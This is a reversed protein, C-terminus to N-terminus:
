YQYYDPEFSTSKMATKCEDKWELIEDIIDKAQQLQNKLWKINAEKHKAINTNPLVSKLAQDVKEEYEDKLKDELELLKELKMNDIRRDNIAKKLKYKITDMENQLKTLKVIIDVTPGKLLINYKLVVRKGKQRVVAKWHLSNRCFGLMENYIRSLTQDNYSKRSKQREYIRRFWIQIKAAAERAKPSLQIKLFRSQMEITTEQVMNLDISQEDEDGVFSIAMPTENQENIESQKTLSQNEPATAIREETSSMMRRLSSHFGEISNYSLKTTGYKEFVSFRSKGGCDYYVNVLSDCGTEKLDNILIEWLRGTNKEVIYKYNKFRPEKTLYRFLNLVRSILTSENLGILVLLRILRLIVNPYKTDEHLLLRQTQNLLTEIAGLFDTRHYGAHSPLLSKVNFANFYSFLYARPLCFDCTGPSNALILFLTFEMLSVLDGFAHIEVISVLRINEIAYQIFVRANSIAEKVKNGRSFLFFSSLRRGVPIAQSSRDNLEFGVPLSKSRYLRQTRSMEWHFKNIGWYDRLQQLVFICKLMTGFDGVNKFISNLWIRHALSIFGTRVIKPLKTLMMHTIESCSTQPTQYRIHAEVLKEAWCRQFRLVLKSQEDKPLVRRRYLIDLQRMVNYQLFGLELRQCIVSPTPIAHYFSCKQRCSVSNSCIISTINPINLGKRHAEEILEFIYSALFRSIKWHVIDVDYVHRDDIIEAPDKGPNEDQMEDMFHILPSDLHIRRERPRGDVVSVFLIKEFDDRIKEVNGDRRPVILPFTIECLRLLCQLRERWYKIEINSRMHLWVNIAYFESALDQRERFFQMCERVKDLDNNLYNIYLQFENKLTIQQKSLIKKKIVGHVKYLLSRLEPLHNPSSINSITNKLVNARCLHLFCELSEIIDDKDNSHTFMHAAKEFEGQSRLYKAAIRFESSKECVKLFENPAHDKLLEAQEEQSLLSLAKKSMEEKGERIFHINILRALRYFTNKEIEQRKMLDIVTEYDGGDKYSVVAKTYKNAKEYYEGAKRWIKGKHYCDAAPEFMKWEVLVDGAEEYMNVSMYCSAAQTPRSCKIFQLAASIFNSKVVEEDSDYISDRAIQQLYYANSLDLKEKNESKEFCFIAQDYLRQEFFSKGRKEWESTSSKKALTPFVSLEDAGKVVKVLGHYKWYTRIPESLEANEDFIWIRERARTVAVYLHKLESSIIYHKEVSFTQIGGSYNSLVSLIVRWKLLAPSDTFFNYLLVDNFEMGKAEFVTLVLGVKGILARVRKKAEDDRVIIVQDAGFESHNGASFASFHFKEAHFGEFIIPRPGGVEGMERPMRDISDPFFNRILDIVSAALRLIGNHSRYNTNLEFRKPKIFKYPGNNAQTRSLEWQYLLQNVDVTSNNSAKSVSLPDAPLVNHQNDQCEDVYVEHIQHGGIAKKKACRLTALTRDMLDYDHNLIKMREYREFIDYIMDRDYFIPHKKINVARYDERSLHDVDPNSGKIISFESYVLACDLKKRSIHPWYKKQFLRFDVFHRWSEDSTDAFSIKPPIFEEGENTDDTIFKQYKATWLKSVDIGYTGELMKSFKGYTIFLPFHHESLQDFSNPIDGLVKEEDDEEILEIDPQDLDGSEEREKMYEYFQTLSMKKGALVASRRLQNFYQKVRLCLTPSVTIFIQRRHHSSPTKHIKCSLEKLYSAILRFIICTTKGTGSRGVIIASKPHNIIEYETKSVQFTFDSGGLVLSKFLNKLLREDDAQQDCLRDDASKVEDDEFVRPFVIENNGTACQQIHVPTYVQHVMELNKLTECIQEQNATVTWIRVLQKFSQSRTSFGRDVQWFIRLEDQEPLLIEYVDVSNSSSPNAITCRLGHRDWAGSSIHGLKKMVAKTKLPSELQRMDKVADESLLVDWPGLKDDNSFEFPLRFLNESSTYDMSEEEVSYKEPSFYVLAHDHCSSCPLFKMLDGLLNIKQQELTRLFNTLESLKQPATMGLLSLHQEDRTSFPPLNKVVVSNRTNQERDRDQKESSRKKEHKVMEGLTPLVLNKKTNLIAREASQYSNLTESLETCAKYMFLRESLQSPANAHVSCKDVLSSIVDAARLLKDREIRNIMNFDFLVRKLCHHGFAESILIGFVGHADLIADFLRNIAQVAIKKDCTQWLLEICYYLLEGFGSTDFYRLNRAIVVNILISAFDSTSSRNRPYSLYNILAPLYTDLSHPLLDSLENFFDDLERTSANLCGDFLADRAKGDNDQSSAFDDFLEILQKGDM